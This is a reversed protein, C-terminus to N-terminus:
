SLYPLENDGLALSLLQIPRIGGYRDFLVLLIAILESPKINAMSIMDPTGVDGVDLNCTAHNIHGGDNIPM